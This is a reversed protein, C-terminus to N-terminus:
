FLALGEMWVWSEAGLIGWCVSGPLPLLAALPFTTPCPSLPTLGSPTFWTGAELSPKFWDLSFKQVHGHECGEPPLPFFISSDAQPAFFCLLEEGPVALQSYLLATLPTM